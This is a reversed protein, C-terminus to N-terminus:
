TAGCVDGAGAVSDWLFPSSSFSASSATSAQRRSPRARAPPTTSPARRTGYRWLISSLTPETGHAAHYLARAALSLPVLRWLGSGSTAALSSQVLLVFAAYLAVRAAPHRGLAAYTAYLIASM